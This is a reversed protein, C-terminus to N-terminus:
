SGWLRRHEERAAEQAAKRDLERQGCFAEMRREDDSKFPLEGTGFRLARDAGYLRSAESMDIGFKRRAQFFKNLEHAM